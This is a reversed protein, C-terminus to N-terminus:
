ILFLHSTHSSLTYSHFYPDLCERRAQDLGGRRTAGRECMYEKVGTGGDGMHGEEVKQVWLARSVYVKKM